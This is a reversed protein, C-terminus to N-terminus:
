ISLLKAREARDEAKEVKPMLSSFEPQAPGRQYLPNSGLLARLNIKIGKASTVTQLFVYSNRQRYPGMHTIIHEIYHAPLM